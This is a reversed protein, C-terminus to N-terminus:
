WRSRCEKGVRREESRMDSPERHEFVESEHPVEGEFVDSVDQREAPERISSGVAGDAAGGTPRVPAGGSRPSSRKAGDASSTAFADIYCPIFLGVKMPM